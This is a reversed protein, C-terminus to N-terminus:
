LVVREGPALLRVEVLPAYRNALAAFQRAPWDPDASRRLPRPLAFTGWHIPIAVTPSIIAAARAAREPDLHGPGVDPGWGWVPLLALDLSNHLDAMETFLDTDGAFYASTSGRVVYGVPEAAPGFRWRRPDHSAPTALVRVAGIAIEDGPRVEQVESVGAGHLWRGAPWPAVIPGHRALRRLTTPDTHDAHLHSLLVCDVRGVASLDVPGAIRVLPGIRGRLVPDTLVRVGDIELLVTAHGLWTVAPLTSRSVPPDGIQSIQAHVGASTMM